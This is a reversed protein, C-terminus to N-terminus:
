EVWIEYVDLNCDKYQRDTNWDGDCSLGFFLYYEATSTVPIQAIYEEAKLYEKKLYQGLEYFTIVGTNTDIGAEVGRAYCSGFTRIYVTQGAKLPIKETTTFMGAAPAYTGGRGSFQFRDSCMNPNASYCPSPVYGSYSLVKKNLECFCNGYRYIYKIRNPSWREMWAGTAADYVLGTSDKYTGVSSDYIQPTSAGEFAGQTSNWIKAAM